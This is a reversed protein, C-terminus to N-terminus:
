DIIKIRATRFVVGELTENKQGWGIQKLMKKEIEFLDTM